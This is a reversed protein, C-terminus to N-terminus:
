KMMRKCPFCRTYNRVTRDYCLFLFIDVGDSFFNRSPSNLGATFTESSKYPLPKGGAAPRQIFLLTRQPSTRETPYPARSTGSAHTMIGKLAFCIFCITPSRSAAGSITPTENISFMLYLSFRKQWVTRRCAGYGVSPEDAERNSSIHHFPLPPLM